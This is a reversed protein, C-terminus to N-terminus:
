KPGQGAHAPSLTSITAQSTHAYISRRYDYTGCRRAIQEALCLLHSSPFAIPDPPPFSKSNLPPFPMPVAVFEPQPDPPYLLNSPKPDSVPDSTLVPESEPPPPIKKFDTPPPTPSPAIPELLQLKPAPGEFTTSFAVPICKKFIDDKEMSTVITRTMESFSTAGLSGPCLEPYTNAPSPAPKLDRQPNPNPVAM